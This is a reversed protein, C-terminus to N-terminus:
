RLIMEYQDADVKGEKHLAEVQALWCACCGM